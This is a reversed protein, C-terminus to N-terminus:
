DASLCGLGYQKCCFHKDTKGWVSPTTSLYARFTEYKYADSLDEKVSSPLMAHQTPKKNKSHINDQFHNHTIAILEPMNMTVDYSECIFKAKTKWNDAKVRHGVNQESAFLKSQPYSLWSRGKAKRSDIQAKQYASLDKLTFFTLSNPRKDYVEGYPHVAISWDYQLALEDWLYDLLNMNRWRIHIADKKNKHYTPTRSYWDRTLSVYVLNKCNEQTNMCNKDLANVATITRKLLERYIDFSRKMHFKLDKTMNKKSYRSTSTDAWNTSDVENWVIYHDIYKGFRYATFRIWDEYDDYHKPTPYCGGMLHRRQLSFYFGECGKDRYIKPTTWLVVAIQIDYDMNQQFRKEWNDIFGKSYCHYNRIGLLKKQKENKPFLLYGKKCVQPKKSSASANEANRWYYNYKQIGVSLENKFVNYRKDSLANVNRDAIGQKNKPLNYEFLTSNNQSFLATTYLLSLFIILKMQSGNNM